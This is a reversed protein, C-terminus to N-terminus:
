FNKNTPAGYQRTRFDPNAILGKQEAAIQKMKYNYCKANDKRAALYGIRYAKHKDTMPLPEGNKDIKVINNNTVRIGNKLEYAYKKAKRAPNLPKWAM